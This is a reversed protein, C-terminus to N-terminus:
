YQQCNSYVRRKGNGDRDDIRYNVASVNFLVNLQDYGSKSTLRVVSAKKIVIDKMLDIEHIAKMANIQIQFQEYTGDALFAEAKSLDRNSWAEQIINFAKQARILFEEKNFTSDKTQLSSYNETEKFSYSNTDDNNSDRNSSYYFLFLVLGLLWTIFMLPFSIFLVELFVFWNDNGDNFAKVAIYSFLIHCIILIPILWSPLSKYIDFLGSLDVDGGHHHRYSGSRYGSSYSRSRSYSSRSSSRSSFSSRHGGSFRHGGGARADAISSAYFVFLSLLFFISLIFINSKKFM